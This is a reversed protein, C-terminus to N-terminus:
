VLVASFGDETFIAVALPSSSFDLPHKVMSRSLASPFVRRWVKSSASTSIGIKATVSSDAFPAMPDSTVNPFDSPAIMSRWVETADLNTFLLPTYKIFSYVRLFLFAPKLRGPAAYVM